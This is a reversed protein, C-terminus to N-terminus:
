EDPNASSSNRRAEPISQDSDHPSDSNTSRSAEASTGAAISIPASSLGDTWTFLAKFCDKSVQALAIAKQRDGWARKAGYMLSGAGAVGLM